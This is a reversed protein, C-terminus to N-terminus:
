LMQIINTSSVKNLYMYYTYFMVLLKQLLVISSFSFM